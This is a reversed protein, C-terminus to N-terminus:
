TVNGPSPILIWADTQIGEGASRPLTLTPARAIWLSM